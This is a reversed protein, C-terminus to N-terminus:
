FRGAAPGSARLQEIVLSVKRPLYRRSPYVFWAATEFDTAAVQHDPFLDELRGSKLDDDILWDALLAPPGGALVHSRVSLASAISIAPTVPVVTETAADDRGRFRWESQFGPVSMVTCPYGAFDTPREPLASRRGFDPSVVVRYRTAFWRSAILSPQGAGAPGLRVALDVNDAVLDLQRDTFALDLTLEPFQKELVPVLPLLVREGFATSASLRLSGRPLGTTARAADSAADLADIEEELRALYTAGAETLTMRRTTRNFLRFGLTEELQAITRSVSSVNRDQAEAVRSFSLERGVALLLRLSEIHM